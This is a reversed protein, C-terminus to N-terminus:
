RWNSNGNVADWLMHHLGKKIPDIIPKELEILNKLETVTIAWDDSLSIGIDAFKANNYFMNGWLGVSGTIEKYDGFPDFKFHRIKIEGTLMLTGGGSKGGWYLSAEIGGYPGVLLNNEAPKESDPEIGFMVCVKGRLMIDLAVMSTLGGKPVSDIPFKIFEYYRCFCLSVAPRNSDCFVCENKDLDPFPNVGFISKKWHVIGTVEWNAIGGSAGIGTGYWRGWCVWFSASLEPM